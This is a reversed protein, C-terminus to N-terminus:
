TKYHRVNGLYHKLIFPSAFFSKSLSIINKLYRPNVDHSTKTGEKDYTNTNIHQSWNFKEIEM